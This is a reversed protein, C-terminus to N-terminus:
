PRDSRRGALGAGASRPLEAGGPGVAHPPAFQRRDRRHRVVAPARRDPAPRADDAHGGALAARGPSGAPAADAALDCDGPHDGMGHRGPLAAHGPVLGRDARRHVPRRPDHPHPRTTNREHPAGPAIIAYNRAPVPPEVALIDPLLLGTTPTIPLAWTTLSRCLTWSAPWRLMRATASTAPARGSINAPVGSMVSISASSPATSPM